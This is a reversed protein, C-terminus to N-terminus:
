HIVLTWTVTFMLSTEHVWQRWIYVCVCVCVACMCVCVVLASDTFQVKKAVATFNAHCFQLFPMKGPTELLVRLM